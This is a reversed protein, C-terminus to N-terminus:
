IRAEHGHGPIGRFCGRGITLKIASEQRYAQSLLKVGMYGTPLEVKYLIYNYASIHAMYNQRM